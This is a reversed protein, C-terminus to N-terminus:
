EGIEGKAVVVSNVRQASIRKMVKGKERLGLRHCIVTPEEDPIGKQPDGQAGDEVEEIELNEIGGKRRGCISYM